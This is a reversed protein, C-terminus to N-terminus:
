TLSQYVSTPRQGRMARLRAPPEPLPFAASLVQVKLPKRGGTGSSLTNVLKVVAADFYLNQWLPSPPLTRCGCYHRLCESVEGPNFQLGKAPPQVGRGPDLLEEVLDGVVGLQIAFGESRRPQHEAVPRGVADFPRHQRGRRQADLPLGRQDHIQGRDAILVVHDGDELPASEPARDRSALEGP